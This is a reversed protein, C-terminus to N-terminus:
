FPVDDEDDEHGDEDRPAPRPRQLLHWLSFRQGDAHLEDVLERVRPVTEGWSLAHERLESSLADIRALKAERLRKEEAHEREIEERRRKAAQRVLDAARPEDQLALWIARAAEASVRARGTISPAFRVVEAAQALRSARFYGDAHKMVFERWRLALCEVQDAHMLVLPGLFGRVFEATFAVVHAGEIGRIFPILVDSFHPADSVMEPTIGNIRTADPWETHHRPRVLTDLLPAGDEALLAVEVIEDEDWRTGTTALHVFCTKTM